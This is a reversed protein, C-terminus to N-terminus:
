ANLLSRYVKLYEQAKADWNFLNGRETVRSQMGNRHYQEIGKRFVEQMHLHEFNQFYFAADGGIEPLSTRESLFLPKGLRMGEVVPAGFGEALSPFLFADCNHLYWSKDGESVPGALHLRDQVGMREAEKKIFEVYDPEDLRGAIILEWDPESQLLPVLVHFNKKRNVYGMTFAFRRKPQYGEPKAPPDAVKHTGNHIVYVPMNGTNMNELVDKKTHASICVIADSQNILAQTKQLSDKREQEPKDEHLVNLDHITLLIKIKGGKRPIVRGSQFPAHWINCNWLFPKFTKHWPKEIVTSCSPNFTNKEAPPIYMRIGLYPDNQLAKNIYEGLNLCYHYLGSHRHRMLDCDLIIRNM